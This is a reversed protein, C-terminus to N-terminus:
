GEIAPAEQQTSAAQLGVVVVHPTPPMKLPEMEGGNGTMLKWLHRIEEGNIASAMARREATMVAAWDLMRDRVTSDSELTRMEMTFALSELGARNPINNSM